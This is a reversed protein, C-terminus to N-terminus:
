KKFNNLINYIIYLYSIYFFWYLSLINYLKYWFMENFNFFFM